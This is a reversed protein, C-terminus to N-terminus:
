IWTRAFRRRMRWHSGSVTKTKETYWGTASQAFWGPIRQAEEPSSTICWGPIRKAEEPSSNQNSRVRAWFACTTP